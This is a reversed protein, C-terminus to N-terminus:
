DIGSENYMFTELVNVARRTLRECKQSAHLDAVAAAAEADEKSSFWCSPGTFGEIYWQRNSFVATDRKVELM